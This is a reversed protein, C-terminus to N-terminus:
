LYCSTIAANLPMVNSCRKTFILQIEDRKREEEEEEEEEMPVVTQQPSKFTSCDGEM